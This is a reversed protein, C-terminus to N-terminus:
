NTEVVSTEASVVLKVVRKKTGNEASTKEMGEAWLYAILSQFGILWFIKQELKVTNLWFRLFVM